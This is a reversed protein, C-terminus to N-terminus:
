EAQTSSAPSVSTTHQQMMTKGVHRELRAQMYSEWPWEANIFASMLFATLIATVFCILIMQFRHGKQYKQLIWIARESVQEIEQFKEDARQRFEDVVMHQDHSLKSLIRAVRKETEGAIQEIKTINKEALHDFNQMLEQLRESHGRGQKLAEEAAVRWRAAGAATMVESMELLQQKLNQQQTEINNQLKQGVQELEALKKQFQQEAQEHVAVFAALDHSVKQLKQDLEEFSELQNKSSM